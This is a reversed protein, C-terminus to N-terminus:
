LVSRSRQSHTLLNYSTNYCFKMPSIENNTSMRRLSFGTKYCFLYPYTRKWVIGIMYVHVHIKLGFGPNILCSSNNSSIPEFMSGLLSCHLFYLSLIIASLICAPLNFRQLMLFKYSLIYTQLISFFTEDLGYWISFDFVLGYWISFYFVLPCVTYIRLLHSM